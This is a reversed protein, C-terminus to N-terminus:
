FKKENKRKIRLIFRKIKKFLIVGLAIVVVPALLVAFVNFWDKNSMEFPTIQLPLKEERLIEEGRKFVTVKTWYRGPELRLYFSAEVDKLAFPEVKKLSNDAGKAILNKWNLDWVEIEVREPAAEINGLNEVNMLFRIKGPLIIKWWDFGEEADLVRLNRIKFDIFELDTVDLDVDIRAGLVISAGGRREFDLPSTRVNIYGKYEKYRANIPVDIKIFLPVRQEGEPLLFEKGPNFTLWDEFEPADVSIKAKLDESPNGRSLIIRTEFFAGPYLRDNFIHAPSIGFGAQTVNAWFLVFLLSIILIRRM